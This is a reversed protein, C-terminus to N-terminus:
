RGPRGLKFEFSEIVKQRVPCGGIVAPHYEASPLGRKVASLFASYYALLDGSPRVVGDPLVEEITSIDAKGSETVTFAFRVTGYVANTRSLEPYVIRPQRKVDVPSEWPTGITFMPVAQRLAVPKMVGSKNVVPRHITINFSASDGTLDEPWMVLEGSSAIDDLARVVLVLVSRPDDMASVSSSHVRTRFRGDRTATVAITGWLNKWNVVSDAAPLAAERQGLIERVRLAVSQNLLDAGPLISVWRADAVTANLVVPVRHFSAPDLSEVCASSRDYSDSQAQTIAPVLLAVLIRLSCRILGNM